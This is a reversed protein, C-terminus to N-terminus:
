RIFLSFVALHVDDMGVKWDLKGSKKDRAFMDIRNSKQNSCCLWEGDPSIALHRPFIGKSEVLQVFEVLGNDLVRYCVISNSADRNSIYIFKGESDMTIAGSRSYGITDEPRTCVVQQEASLCGTEVNQNYVCLTSDLENVVYAWPKMPHFTMHRPGSGPRTRIFPVDAPVLKGDVNVYQFIKDQGLDCGYVFKGKSLVDTGLWHANAMFQRKDNGVEVKDSNLDIVQRSGLKGNELVQFASYTGTYFNSVYAMKCNEDLDMHTPSHGGSLITQIRTLPRDNNPNLKFVSIAGNFREHQGSGEYTGTEDCSYLLTQDKNSVLWSPQSGVSTRSVYKLTLTEPDFDVTHIDPGFSGIILRM